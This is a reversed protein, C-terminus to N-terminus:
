REIEPTNGFLNYKNQKQKQKNRRNLRPFPPTPHPKRFSKGSGRRMKLDILDQITNRHDHLAITHLIRPDM